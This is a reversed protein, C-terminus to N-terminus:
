SSAPDVHADAEIEITNAEQTVLTGSAADGEVVVNVEVTVKEGRRM